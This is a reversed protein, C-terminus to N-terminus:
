RIGTVISVPKRPAPFVVSRFAIKDLCPESRIATIILSNPSIPRSWSNISTTSPSTINIADPQKHQERRPSRERVIVLRTSSFVLPLNLKSRITMSVVPRASGPGIKCVKSTSELRALFTRMSPTIVTTSAALPGVVSSELKSATEWIAM